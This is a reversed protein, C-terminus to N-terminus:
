VPKVASAPTKKKVPKQTQMRIAEAIPNHPQTMLKDYGKKLNWDVGIFCGAIVAM